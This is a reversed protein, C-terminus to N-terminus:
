LDSWIGMTSIIERLREKGSGDPFRDLIRAARDLYVRCLEKARSLVETKECLGFLFRIEDGDPKRKRLLAKLRDREKGKTEKLLWILYLNPRENIMDAFRGKLSSSECSFIDKSDDLIQFAIGLNLGFEAASERWQPCGALIAGAECPGEILSATKQRVLEIYDDIECNVLDKGIVGDLLEGHCANLGSRTACVIIDILDDRSLDTPKYSNLMEFAMLLLADGSVIAGDMGYRNLVTERGRRMEANDIVDDHVLSATHALEYSLAAPMGMDRDGGFTEVMILVLSSRLRKGPSVLSYDIVKGLATEPDLLVAMRKDIIKRYPEIIAELDRGLRAFLNEFISKVPEFHSGPSTFFLGLADRVAGEAIAMDWLEEKGEPSMLLRKVQGDWRHSHDIIESDIRDSYQGNWDTSSDKLYEIVAEAALKGSIRAECIGGGQLPNALGASDGLLFVNQHSRKEVAFSPIFGKETRVTTVAGFHNAIFEDLIALLNKKKLYALEEGCGVYTQGRKPFVWFYGGQLVEPQFHMALSEAEQFREGELIRQVAFGSKHYPFAPFGLKKFFSIGGYGLALFVFRATYVDKGTTVTAIEGSVRIDVVRERFRIRGGASEAREMLYTDYIERKVSYGGMDTEGKSMILDEAGDTKLIVNNIPFDYAESPPMGFIEIERYPIAGGCAKSEGKNRKEILLTSLGSGALRYLAECGAPGGGLIIVDYM